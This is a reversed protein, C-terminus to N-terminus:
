RGSNDEPVVNNVPVMLEDIRDAVAQAGRLLQESTWVSCLLSIIRNAPSPGYEKSVANFREQVDARTIADIAKKQWDGLYRKMEYRYLENTRPKRNPNSSMYAQFIDGLTPM